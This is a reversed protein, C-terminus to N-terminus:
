FAAKARITRASRNRASVPFFEPGPAQQMWEFVSGGLVNETAKGMLNTDRLVDFGQHLGAYVGANGNQIFSATVFGQNSMIEALTLYRESLVDSFHWVGTATPYLGTFISPVSPRTKTAQSFAHEFVVGQKAMVATKNPSTDREYGYTSLYDARLADELIVVVNLRDKPASRIRPNSWLALTKPSEAEAHLGLIVSREPGASWISRCTRGTRLHRSMPKM